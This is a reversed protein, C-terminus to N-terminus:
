TVPSIGTSTSQVPQEDEIKEPKPDRDGKEESESRAKAMCELNRPNLKTTGQPNVAIIEVEDPVSKADNFDSVPEEKVIKLNGKHDFREADGPLNGLQFPPMLFNLLCVLKKASDEPPNPIEQGMWGRPHAAINAEEDSAMLDVHTIHSQDTVPYPGLQPCLHRDLADLAKKIRRNDLHAQRRRPDVVLRAPKGTKSNAKIRKNPKLEPLTLEQMKREAEAM